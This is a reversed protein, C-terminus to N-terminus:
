RRMNGVCLALISLFIFRSLKAIDGARFMSMEFGEQMEARDKESTSM